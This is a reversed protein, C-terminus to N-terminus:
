DVLGERIAYVAAEVRNNLHLKELINHLYKKVTSESLYLREAIDPNSLGVVVLELVQQERDTLLEPKPIGPRDARDKDQTFEKMMKAAMVGSLPAEGQLLKHIQDRLRRSPTNKLIYGHAGSKLAEFLDSEEESMTLIVVKVSPLERTIARTAEIGNMVPMAIDILIVDPLYQSALQLAEVGNSAEGVVEFDDWHRIINRLGERFLVHDDVILLKTM